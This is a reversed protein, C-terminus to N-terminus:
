FDFTIEQKLDERLSLAVPCTLAREKLVERHETALNCNPWTMHVKIAAIRRPNASMVKTTDAKLGEISIKMKNAQIGMITMMCSTLAAAVLDTPSFTEGKGHNDTPADTVIKSNSSLHVAETRLEGKYNSKIHM